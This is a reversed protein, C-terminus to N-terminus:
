KDIEGVLTVAGFWHSANGDNPDEPYPELRIHALFRSHDGRVMVVTGEFRRHEKFAAIVAAMYNALQAPDIFNKYGYQLLQAASTRMLKEYAANVQTNKGISDCIFRAQPDLKMQGWQQAMITELAKDQTDLRSNFGTLMNEILAGLAEFQQTNRTSGEVVTPWSALMAESQEARAKRKRKAEALKPRIGKIWGWLLALLGAAGTIIEFLTPLSELRNPM